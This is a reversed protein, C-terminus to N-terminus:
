GEKKRMEQRDSSVCAASHGDKGSVVFREFTFEVIIIVYHFIHINAVVTCQRKILQHLALLLQHSRVPAESHPTRQSSQRHDRGGQRVVVRLRHCAHHPQLVKSGGAIQICQQLHTAAQHARQGDTEIQRDRDTQVADTQQRDADM